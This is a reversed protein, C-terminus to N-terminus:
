QTCEVRLPSRMRSQIEHNVTIEHTEQPTRENIKNHMGITLFILVLTFELAGHKESLAGNGESFSSLM